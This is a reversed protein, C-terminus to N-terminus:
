RPRRVSLLRRLRLEFGGSRERRNAVVWAHQEGLATTGPFLSATHADDGMGLLVLDFRPWLANGFFSKLEQEYLRANSAPDGEGIMRHVREPSLPVHSILRQYVLLYNSDPHDPPVCREDGFFIDVRSWQIRDKFRKCALIEYVRKPTHGGALAVSFRGQEGIADRAYKAFREAAALALDEANRYVLVKATTAM